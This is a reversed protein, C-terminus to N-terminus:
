NAPKTSPHEAAPAPVEGGAWYGVWRVSEKGGTTTTVRIVGSVTGSDLGQPEARIPSREDVAWMRVRERVGERDGVVTHQNYVLSFGDGTRVVMLEIVMRGVGTEVGGPPTVVTRARVDAAPIERVTLKPQFEYVVASDEAVRFRIFSRYEGAAPMQTYTSITMELQKGPDLTVVDDPREPRPMIKPFLDPVARNDSDALGVELYKPNVLGPKIVRVPNDMPARVTVRLTPFEGVFVDPTAWQVKVEPPIAARAATPCALSVAVGFVLVVLHGIRRRTSILSM